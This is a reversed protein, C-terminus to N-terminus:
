RHTLSKSVSDKKRLLQIFYALFKEVYRKSLADTSLTANSHTAARRTRSVEPEIRRRSV